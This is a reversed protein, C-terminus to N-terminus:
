PMQTLCWLILICLPGILVAIVLHIIIYPIYPIYVYIDLVGEYFLGWLWAAQNTTADNANMALWIWQQASTVFLRRAPRVAKRLRVCPEGDGVGWKKCYTVHLRTAALLVILLHDTAKWMYLMCGWLVTDYPSMQWLSPQVFIIHYHQM